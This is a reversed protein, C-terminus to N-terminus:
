SDDNRLSNNSMKGKIKMKEIREMSTQLISRTMSKKKIKDNSAIFVAISFSHSLTNFSFSLSMLIILSQEAAATNKDIKDKTTM